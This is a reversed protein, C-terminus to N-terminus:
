KRPIVQGAANVPQGNVQAVEVRDLVKTAATAQAPTSVDSTLIPTGIPASATIIHTDGPASPPSDTLTASFSGGIITVTATDTAGDVALTVVTGDPAVTGDAFTASGSATYSGGPAISSPTLTLPNNEVTASGISLSTPGWTYGSM